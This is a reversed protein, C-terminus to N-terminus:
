GEDAVSQAFVSATNVQGPALDVTPSDVPILESAVPLCTKMDSRLTETPGVQQASLGAAALAYGKFIRAARSLVHQVTTTRRGLTLPWGDDWLAVETLHQDLAESVLERVGPNAAFVDASVALGQGLRPTSLLTLREDLEVAHVGLIQLPRTDRLQPLLVHVDWGAAARDYLWGGASRVVDVVTNAVVDLRYTLVGRYTDSLQESSSPSHVPTSITM